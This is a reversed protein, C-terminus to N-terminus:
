RDIKQNEAEARAVAQKVTNWVSSDGQKVKLWYWWEAGWLDITRMGTDIGYDIRKKLREANLSKFQEDLPASWLEMGKPPWPEAQLEHIIMDRGNVLEGWGALSSYFWPPFPYEFYRKTIVADWVRKYISIAYRDPTPERVPIGVWNDSRSIIITHNPDWQKVMKYEAVLRARDFDTCKGFVKMFFENELEYSELAPNTRYREVVAEMYNYLKPQWFDKPQNKAWDPEHCEPWRPQRMGIALSVKTNYKNALEFQWDLDSFNYQGQVPEITKWYSVLRVQRLKLDSLMAELAAKPDIDFKRAYDAIFSAGLVLPEHRHKNVYWQAVGYSSVILLILLAALLMFAKRWISGRWFFHWFRNFLKKSGSPHKLKSPM